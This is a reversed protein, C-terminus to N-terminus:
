VEGRETCYRVTQSTIGRMRARRAFASKQRNSIRELASSSSSPRSEELSQRLALETITLSNVPNSQEARGDSLTISFSTKENQAKLKVLIVPLHQSM